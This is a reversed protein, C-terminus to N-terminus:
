SRDYEVYIHGVILELLYLMTVLCATCGYEYLVIAIHVNQRKMDALVDEVERTGPVFLTPRMIAELRQAPDARLGALIAKAHVVGIVDDLSERYVPYRSRGAAAVRDFFQTHSLVAQVSIVETGPRM